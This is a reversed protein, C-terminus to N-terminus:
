YRWNMVKALNQFAAEQEVSLNRPITVELIVYMNGGNLGMGQFKLKSGNGSGAPISVILSEGNPAKLRIKSGLVAQAINICVTTEIDNGKLVFPEVVQIKIKYKYGNILLIEDNGTGAPINISTPEPKDVMIYGGSLAKDLPVNVIYDYNEKKNSSATQSPNSTTKASSQSKKQSTSKNKSGSFINTFKNLVSSFSDSESDDDSDKSKDKDEDDGNFIYDFIDGLDPTKGKKGAAPGGGYKNYYDKWFDDFPGNSSFGAFNYIGQRKKQWDYKKREEDKGLVEYAESIEKFKQEANKNDKNIDPHYKKALRKFSKKIEDKTANESVELIKYYDKM